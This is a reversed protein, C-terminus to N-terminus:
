LEAHWSSHKFLIIQKFRTSSRNWSHQTWWHYCNSCSCFFPKLPSHAKGVIPAEITKVHVLANKITLHM